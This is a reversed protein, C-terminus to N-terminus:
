FCMFSGLKPSLIFRSLCKLFPEYLEIAAERGILRFVELLFFLLFFSLSVKTLTEFSIRFLEATVKFGANSKADWFALSWYSFLSFFCVLWVWFFVNGMLVIFWTATPGSFLLLFLLPRMLPRLTSNGYVSIFGCSCTQLRYDIPFTVKGVQVIKKITFVLM